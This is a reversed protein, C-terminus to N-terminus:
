PPGAAQFSLPYIIEVSGGGQPAPFVLKRFERVVCDDVEPDLPKQISATSVTGDSSIVFYVNVKGELTPKKTLVSEYCAKLPKMNRRVVRRILEKDPAGYIIETRGETITPGNKEGFDSAKTPQSTLQEPASANQAPASATTPRATTNQSSPQPDSTEPPNTNQRIPLAPDSCGSLLVIANFAASV